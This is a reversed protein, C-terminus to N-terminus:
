NKSEIISKLDRGARMAINKIKPISNNLTSRINGSENILDIVKKVAGKPYLQDQTLCYNTHGFIDYNIGLGKVSYTLSITPVGSSLSAITSHTRSGIFYDMQSIIWKTQAANLVPPILVFKERKSRTVISMIKKLFLYDNSLPDTVHPILYIKEVQELDALDNLIKTACEDWTMGYKSPVFKSMLPSLNLGLSDKGINSYDFCDPIQPELLFAPDATLYVNDLNNQTLYDYSLSERVFIAPLKKLHELMIREFPPNTSFPGVSAGWVIPNKGRKQCFKDVNIQHIPLGYDLSYTDGGIKLVTQASKLYPELNKSECESLANKYNNYCQTLFNKNVLSNLVKESKSNGYCILSGINKALYTVHDLKRKWTPYDIFYLYEHDISKDCEINKQTLYQNRNYFVAANIYGPNPYFNGIIKTTGRVIAECGRNDYVGATTLIFKTESSEM